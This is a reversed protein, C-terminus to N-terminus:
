NIQLEFADGIPLANEGLAFVSVNEATGDFSVRYSSGNISLEQMEAKEIGIMRGDEDYVAFYLDAATEQAFNGRVSVSLSNRGSRTIEASLGEPIVYIKLIVENGMRNGALQIQDTLGLASVLNGIDQELSSFYSEVDGEVYVDITLNGAQLLEIAQERDYETVRGGKVTFYNAAESTCEPLAYPTGYLAHDQWIVRDTVNFYAHYLVEDQDDWTLDVHYYEGDIRVLNWGHPQDQSEGTVIFSRIGVRHLLAQFAEAYGECVAEGEVLAGYANHANGSEIYTVKEALADHIYLEKEFESMDEEIGALIEEAVAEFDAKAEELEAGEMIYSIVVAIVDDYDYMQIGYGGDLWFVETHDYSYAEYVIGIEEVSIKDTGNRVDITREGNAVGEAIADYAYLLAEANDMEALVSRGYYLEEPELYMPGSVSTWAGSQAQTLDKSYACVAFAYWGSGNKKLIEAPLTFTVTDGTYTHNGIDWVTDVTNETAGYYFRFEYRDVLEPVFNEEVEWAMEGDEIWYANYTNLGLEPQQYYFSTSVASVDSNDCVLTDKSLARVTFFYYGDGRNANELIANQMAWVDNPWLNRSGVRRATAPDPTEGTTTYYFKVEYHDVLELQQAPMDWTIGLLDGTWRPNTIQLKDEVGGNEGEVYTYRGELFFPESQGRWGYNEARNIVSFVYQGSTLGADEFASINCSDARVTYEYVPMWRDRDLEGNEGTYWMQVVATHGYSYYGYNVDEPDAWSMTGSDGDFRGSAPAPTRGHEETGKMDLHYPESEAWPSEGNPSSASHRVAYKYWGAGYYEVIDMLYSRDKEWGNETDIQMWDGGESRTYWIKLDYPGYC